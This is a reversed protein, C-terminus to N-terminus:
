SRKKRVAGEGLKKKGQSRDWAEGSSPSPGASAAGLGPPHVDQLGGGEEPLNTYM